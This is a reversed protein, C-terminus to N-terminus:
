LCKGFRPLCRKQSIKRVVGKHADVELLDGDKFARTAVRTGVVCPKGMERSVIAAHCLIGGMDTVFAAAKEMAPVYNPDTMSVVMIDGREVKGIDGDSRLVKAHGKAFGPSAARGRVERVGSYDAQRLMSKLNGVEGGSIIALRGDVMAIAFAGKRESVTARDLARNEIASEIERDTLYLVDEVSAGLRKAIEEFLPYLNFFAINYADVRYPKLFALDRAVDSLFLLEPEGKLEATLTGRRQNERVLREEATRLERECDKELLEKLRMFFSERRYPDGLFLYTNLWQYKELHEGMKELVKPSDPGLNNKQAFAAIRLLSFHEEVMVIRKNPISLDKMYADVLASDRGQRELYGRLLLRIREELQAELLQFGELMPQALRVQLMFDSFIGKLEEDSVAAFSKGKFGESFGILARSANLVREGYERFYHKDARIKEAFISNLGNFDARGFSLDSDLYLFNRIGFDFGLARKYYEASKGTVTLYAFLFAENWRGIKYWETRNIGEALEGLMVVTPCFFIFLPCM